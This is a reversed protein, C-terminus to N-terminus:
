TSRTQVAERMAAVRTAGKSDYLHAVEGFTVAEDENLPEGDAPIDGTMRRRRPIAARVGARAWAPAAAWGALTLAAAVVLGM